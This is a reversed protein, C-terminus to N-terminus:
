ATCRKKLWPNDCSPLWAHLIGQSEEAIEGMKTYLYTMMTGISAAVLLARVPQNLVAIKIDIILVSILTTQWVLTWQGFIKNFWLLLMSLQTTCKETVYVDSM